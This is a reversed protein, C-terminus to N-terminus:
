PILSEFLRRSEAAAREYEETRDLAAIKEALEAQSYAPNFLPASLHKTWVQSVVTGLTIVPVGCYLLQLAMSSETTALIAYRIRSLAAIGWREREHTVCPYRAALTDYTDHWDLLKHSKIVFPMGKTCAEKAASEAYDCVEKRPVL